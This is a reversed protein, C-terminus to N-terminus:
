VSLDVLLTYIYRGMRVNAGQKMRHGLQYARMM